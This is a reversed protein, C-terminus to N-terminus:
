PADGSVFSRRQPSRRRRGGTFLLALAFTALLWASAPEPAPPDDPHVLGQPDVKYTWGDNTAFLDLVPSAILNDLALVKKTGAWEAGDFHAVPAIDSYIETGDAIIQTTVDTLTGTPDFPLVPPGSFFGQTQVIAGILPDTTDLVGNELISVIAQGNGNSFHGTAPNIAFTRNVLDLNLVLATAPSLPAAGASSPLLMVLALAPGSLAAMIRRLLAHPLGSM